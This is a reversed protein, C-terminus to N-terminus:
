RQEELFRIRALLRDVGERGRELRAKLEANEKELAVLRSLVGEAAEQDGTFRQALAEVEAARAAEEEARARAERLSALLGSVADDLARFAAREPRGDSAETNSM